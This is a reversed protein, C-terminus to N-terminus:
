VACPVEACRAFFKIFM